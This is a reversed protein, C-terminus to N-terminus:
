LGLEDKVRRLEETTSGPVCAAQGTLMSLGDTMRLELFLTENGPNVALVSTIIGRGSSGAEFGESEWFALLDSIAADDLPEGELTRTGTFTTGEGGSGPLACDVPSPSDDNVWTGGGLEEQTEDLLALLRQQSQEPSVMSAPAATCGTMALFTVILGLTFPM